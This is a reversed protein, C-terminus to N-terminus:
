ETELLQAFIGPDADRAAVGLGGPKEALDGVEGVVAGKDLDLLSDLAQHMDGLHVPGVLVHVGRLDNLEAIFDFHHDEFDILIPTPNGQPHLLTSGIRPIVERHVVLLAVPDTAGDLRDGVKADEDTQGTTNVTQHM